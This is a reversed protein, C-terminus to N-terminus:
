VVTKKVSTKQLINWHIHWWHICMQCLDECLNGEGETTNESMKHRAAIAVDEPLKIV